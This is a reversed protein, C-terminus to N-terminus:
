PDSSKGGRRSHARRKGGEVGNYGGRPIRKAEKGNGLDRILLKNPMALRVRLGM